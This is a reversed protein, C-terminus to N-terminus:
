AAEAARGAGQRVAGGNRRRARRRDRGFDAEPAPAPTTETFGGLSPLARLQGIKEEMVTLTQHASDM